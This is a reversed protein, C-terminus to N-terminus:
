KRRLAELQNTIDQMKRETLPYFFIFAVSLMTGVAPLLSLFMKIGQLTEANQM